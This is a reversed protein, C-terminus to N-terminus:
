RINRFSNFSHTNSICTNDATATATNRRRRRRPLIMLMRLLLLIARRLQRAVGAIGCQSESGGGDGDDVVVDVARTRQSASVRM